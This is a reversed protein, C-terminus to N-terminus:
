ASVTRDRAIRADFVGAALSMAQPLLLSRGERRFSAVEGPDLQAAVRYIVDEVRKRDHPSLRIGTKETLSQAVVDLMLCDNWRGLCAAEEAGMAIAIIMPWIHGMQSNVAISKRLAQAAAARDGAWVELLGLFCYGLPLGGFDGLDRSMQLGDLVEHRGEDPHGLRATALGIVRKSHAIMTMHNAQEFVERAEIAKQFHDLDDGSHWAIGSHTSLNLGLGPLDGVSRFLRAGEELRAKLLRYDGGGWMRAGALGTHVMAELAATEAASGSGAAILPIAELLSSETRYPNGAWWALHSAAVLAKARLLPPATAKVALASEVAASGEVFMGRAAWYWWLSSTLLLATQADGSEVVWSLAKVINPYADTLRDFWVAEDAGKLNVESKVALGAFHRAHRAAQVAQEGRRLLLTAAFQRVPELMRWRDPELTKILSAEALRALGAGVDYGEGDPVAAWADESSFSGNLSCLREFFRADAEDLFRYSVNLALEISRHRGRGGHAADLLPLFAGDPLASLSISAGALGMARVMSAACEIALPVCDLMGCLQRVRPDSPNERKQPDPYALAVLLESADSVTLEPVDYVVEGPIGLAIRSTTLLRVGPCSAGLRGCLRRVLELLEECNDVVVLRESTRLRDVLTDEPRQYPQPIFGLSRVILSIPDAHREAEALDVLSAGEALEGAFHDALARALRTKGIGGPGRLTVLRHEAILEAVEALASERGVIPVDSTRQGRPAPEGAEGMQWVGDEYPILLDKLRATSASEYVSASVLIQRECARDALRLLRVADSISGGAEVHSVAGGFLPPAEDDLNTLLDAVARLAPGAGSFSALLMGHSLQHLRGGFRNVTIVLTAMALESAEGVRLAFGVPQGQVSWISFTRNRGSSADLAAEIRELASAAATRLGYLEEVQESARIDPSIDPLDGAANELARALLLQAAAPECKELLLGASALRRFIAVDLQSPPVFLGYEGNRTVIISRDADGLALRLRKILDQLSNLPNAPLSEGWLHDVLIDPPVTSNASLMLVSLVQQQKRGLHIENKSPGLVRVGGFLSFELM